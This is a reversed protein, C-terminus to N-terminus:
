APLEGEFALGAAGSLCATDLTSLKMAANSDVVREAVDLGLHDALAATFGPVAM